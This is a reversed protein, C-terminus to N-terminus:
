RHVWSVQSRAPFGKQIRSLQWDTSLRWAAPELSGHEGWQSDRHLHVVDTGDGCGGTSYRVGSCVM